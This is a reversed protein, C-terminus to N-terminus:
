RKRWLELQAWFGNMDVPYAALRALGLREALLSTQNPMPNLWCLRGGPPLKRAVHTVFRIMLPELEGRCVRRGMPPNSIVCTVGSPWLALADGCLLEVRAAAADTNARATALAAPERDSGILRVGPSLKSVECLEGGSGVFPDWVVDLARPSLLRALAAALTPQSAAAVMKHRYAFRPDVLQKPFLSLGVAREDRLLLEFQWPSDTPDNVLYPLRESVQQALKHLFSRRPGAGILEWRYRLSGDTLTRLLTEVAPKSLASAIETIMRVDALDFPQLPLPFALDVFTRLAFLEGLPRSWPITIRSPEGLTKSREISLPTIGARQLEILLIPEVGARLRLTVPWEANLSVTARIRSEISPAEARHVTRSLRQIAKDIVTSLVPQDSPQAVSKLLTLSALGGIKGLAEAIARRDASETWCPWLEILRSETLMSPVPLKGLAIVAARAVKRDPDLLLGLLPSPDEVATEVILRGLLPVLEQRAREPASALAREVAPIAPKGVRLLAVTVAQPTALGRVVLDVVAECDRVKPTYSPSLIANQLAPQM